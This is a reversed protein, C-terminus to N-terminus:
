SKAAYQDGLAVTYQDGLAVTSFAANRNAAEKDIMADPFRAGGPVGQFRFPGDILDLGLSM